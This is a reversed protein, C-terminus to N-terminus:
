RACWEELRAKLVGLRGRWAAKAARASASDPLREHEVSVIAKDPGKAEVTVRVRSGDDCHFRASRHPRSTPDTLTLEPLWALRQEADVFSDFLREASVAITASAGGTFTGDPRAGPQRIGRDQEYEVILKQAWWESVGQETLWDAIERFPRRAAGWGDLATFWEARDRGTSSRLSGSSTSIRKDM